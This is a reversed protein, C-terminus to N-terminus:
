EAFRLDRDSQPLRFSAPIRRTRPTLRRFLRGAVHCGPSAASLAFGLALPRMLPHIKPYKADPTDLASDLSKELLTVMGDASKRTAKLGILGFFVLAGGGVLSIVLMVVPMKFFFSAGFWLAFMLSIELIAHGSAISTGVLWGRGRKMYKLTENITMTTVPRFSANNGVLTIDTGHLTVVVKLDREIVIQKALLAAAGFPIAYHAHLLDLDRLRAVDAMKSALALTYPFQKLLPYHEIEVEHFSVRPPLDTLRLPATSSVFAVEHGREALHKGLETAVVGSGGHTPHCSIGIRM